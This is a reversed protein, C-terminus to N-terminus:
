FIYALKSKNLNNSEGKLEAPMQNEVAKADKPLSLARPPLLNLLSLLSTTSPLLANKGAVTKLKRKGGM